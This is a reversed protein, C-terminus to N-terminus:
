ILGGKGQARAFRLASRLRKGLANQVKFWDQDTHFDPSGKGTIATCYKLYDSEKWAEERLKWNGIEILKCFIWEAVKHQPTNRYEINSDNSDWDILTERSIWSKLAEIVKTGDSDTVLWAAHDLGTQKKIFKCMAEDHGNKVIAMNYAAIWLARAKNLYPGDLKMENKPSPGMATIIDRYQRPELGKLSRQGTERQVILYLNEQEISRERAAAWVAKLSSM